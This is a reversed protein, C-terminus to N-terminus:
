ECTSDIFFYFNMSISFLNATAPMLRPPTDTLNFHIFTISLQFSRSIFYILEPFTIYLM